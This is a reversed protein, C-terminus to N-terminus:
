KRFKNKNLNMWYLSKRCLCLDSFPQNGTARIRMNTARGVCKLALRKLDRQFMSTSLYRSDFVLLTTKLVVPLAGAVEAHIGRLLTWVNVRVAFAPVGIFTEQFLLINILAALYNLVVLHKM